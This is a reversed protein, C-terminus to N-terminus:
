CLNTRLSNLMKKAQSEAGYSISGAGPINVSGVGDIRNEWLAGLILLVAQLGVSGEDSAQAAARDAGCGATYVIEVEYNNDWGGERYLMAMSLREDYDDVTLLEGDIKVSTIATVPRRYLQLWQSGDGIHTETIEREVFAYGSQKEAWATAANIQGELTGDDYGDFTGSSAKDYAATVSKGNPPATVFTCVAGIRTYDTGEAKEVGDVYLRLTGEIPTNDLAFAKNSGNGMGVYEAEIHDSVAHDLKLHAKAQLLTVLATANLPM